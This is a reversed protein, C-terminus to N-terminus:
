QAALWDKAQDLTDFASIQRGSFAMAANYIVKRLGEVGIVASAKIYPKNHATFDKIIASSDKSLETETVNTLALVSALPQSAVARKAEAVVTAIESTKCSSLDFYLIKKGKHTVFQVRSM